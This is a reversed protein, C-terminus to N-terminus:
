GEPRREPASEELELGRTEPFRTYLLALMAVPITVVAAAAVFDEAADAVIGFVALGVTAGVIQTASLWGAATARVSTPFLEADLAGASPTFASAAMVVLPYALTLAWVDGSYAVLAAASGLVLSMGATIRRGFADAGWRGIVLGLLGTAGAALVVVAMWAPSLELVNEGYLFLYSNIPGTLFGIGFHITCLLALRPVLDERMRGLLRPRGADDPRDLERYRIPEELRRGVFPVYLLPVAALLLFSRFGVVEDLLGRSVTLLGAGIAFAAGVLAIAKSRDRSATEEAAIVGAVANTGTLLPRGLAFLAVFWWWSPAAASAATLVLGLACAGILVRRRGFRDAIGAAWLSGISSLRIIALGIGITTGAMGVEAAFGDEPVAVGFEDALDGLLAIVGFQGFGAALTLAAAALVTPHLWSRLRDTVHSGEPRGDTV